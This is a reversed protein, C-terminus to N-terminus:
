VGKIKIIILNHPFNNLIFNTAFNLFIIYIPNQAVIVKRVKSFGEKVSRERWSGVGKM